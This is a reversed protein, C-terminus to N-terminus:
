EFLAAEAAYLATLYDVVCRIVPLKDTDRRRILWLERAPPAKGLDCAQLGQVGRGVFHPLLAVGAGAAAAMAQASHSTLRVRVRQRPFSRRLWLAEHLHANTEDFGTFELPAGARVRELWPAAAYFGYGVSAVCKAIVDGDEPRGLRLALDAESRELSVPRVDSALEVDIGPHDRVLGALRHALFHQAMSPTASLRVLGGPAGTLAERGLTAAATEMARISQLVRAGAPTLAYGDPRREALTEGLARELAAVRRAVTAHNVGLARATASLSGHRALAIFVRIDEWDPGTRFHDAM